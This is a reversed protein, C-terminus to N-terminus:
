AKLQFLHTVQPKVQQALDGDLRAYIGATAETYLARDFGDGGNLTDAGNGGNLEDDGGFGNLTDNGALGSISDFTATGNLTDNGNTGTINANWIITGSERGPAAPGVKGASSAAFNFDALFRYGVQFGASSANSDMLHNKILPNTSSSKAKM